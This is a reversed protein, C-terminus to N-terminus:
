GSDTTASLHSPRLNILTLSSMAPRVPLCLQYNITVSIYFLLTCFAAFRFLYNTLLQIWLVPLWTFYDLM